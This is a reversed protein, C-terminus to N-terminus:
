ITKQIHTDPFFLILSYNVAELSHVNRQSSIALFVEFPNGTVSGMRNM